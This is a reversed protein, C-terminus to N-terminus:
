GSSRPLVLLLPLGRPSPPWNVLIPLGVPLPVQRRRARARHSLREIRKDLRPGRRRAPTSTACFARWTAPGRSCHAQEETWYEALNEALRARSGPAVRSTRRRGVLATRSSTESCSSLDEEFDWSFTASFPTGPRGATRAQARRFASLWNFRPTPRGPSGSSVRERWRLQSKSFVERWTNPSMTACRRAAAPPGDRRPVPLGDAGKGPFGASVSRPAAGARAARRRPSSRGRRRCAARRVHGARYACRAGKRM